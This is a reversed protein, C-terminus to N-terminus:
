RQDRGTRHIRKGRGDGQVEHVGSTGFLRRLVVCCAVRANQTKDIKMVM